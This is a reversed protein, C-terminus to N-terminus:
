WLRSWTEHIKAVAQPRQLASGDTLYPNRGLRFAVQHHDAEAIGARSNGVGLFEEARKLRASVGKTQSEVNRPCNQAGV